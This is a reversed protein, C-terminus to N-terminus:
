FNYTIGLGNSTSGVNFTPNYSQNQLSANYEEAIGKLTKKGSVWLPIGVSLFPVSCGVGIASVKLAEKVDGGAIMSGIPYGIAFGICYAGINNLINATKTKRTAKIFGEYQAGQFYSTGQDKTIANGLSNFLKGDKYSIPGSVVGGDSLTLPIIGDITQAKLLLASMVFIVTLLIRKMNM